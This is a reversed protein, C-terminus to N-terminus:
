SFTIKSTLKYLKHQYTEESSEDPTFTLLHYGFKIVDLITGIDAGLSHNQLCVMYIRLLEANKNEQNLFQNSLESLINQKVSMDYTIDDVLNQILLIYDALTDYFDEFDIFIPKRSKYFKKQLVNLLLTINYVESRTFLLFQDIEPSLEEIQKLLNELYKEVLRNTYKKYYEDELLGLAGNKTLINYDTDTQLIKVLKKSLNTLKKDWIDFFRVSTDVLTKLNEKISEFSSYITIDRQRFSDSTSM